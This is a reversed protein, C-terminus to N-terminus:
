NGSYKQRLAYVQNNFDNIACRARVEAILAIQRGEEAAWKITEPDNMRSILEDINVM